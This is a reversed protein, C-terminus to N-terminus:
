NNATKPGKQCGFTARVNRAAFKYQSVWKLVQKLSQSRSDTVKIKIYLEVMSAKM